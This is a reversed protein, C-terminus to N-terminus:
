SGSYYKSENLRSTLIFSRFLKLKKISSFIKITEKLYAPLKGFTRGPQFLFFELWQLGTGRLITNSYNRGWTLKVAAGLCFYDLDPRITDLYRALTNQKPSSIGLILFKGSPIKKIFDLVEGDGEFSDKHKLVLCSEEAISEIKEALLFYCNDHFEKALTHAMETGSFYKGRAALMLGFLYCSIGDIYLIDRSSNYKDFVEEWCVLNPFHHIM